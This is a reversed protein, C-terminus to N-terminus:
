EKENFYRLIEQREQELKNLDIQFYSALLENTNLKCSIYCQHGNKVTPVVRECLAMRQTSLWDLFTGITQIEANHKIKKESESM